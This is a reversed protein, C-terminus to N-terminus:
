GHDDVGPQDPQDQDDDPDQEEDARAHIPPVVVSEPPPDLALMTSAFLGDAGPGPPCGSEFYGVWERLLEAIRARLDAYDADFVDQAREGWDGAKSM